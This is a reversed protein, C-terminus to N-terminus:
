SGAPSKGSRRRRPSRFPPAKAGAVRFPRRYRYVTQASGRYGRDRIETVLQSINTHGTNWRQRLYPKFGDLLSSRSTTKAVLEEASGARTHRRVPKRDLGLERAIARIGQGQTRLKQVETFRERIRAEWGSEPEGGVAGPESDGTPVPKAEAVGSNIDGDPAASEPSASEPLCARHANVTKEVAEGLKKLLHWRDACQVAQPAGRSAAEAYASSRDRTIM